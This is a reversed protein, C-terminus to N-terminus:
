IHGWCDDKSASFIQMVRSAYFRKIQIPYKHHDITWPSTRTLVQFELILYEHIDTFYFSAVLCVLFLYSSCLVHKQASLAFAHRIYSVHYTVLRLM